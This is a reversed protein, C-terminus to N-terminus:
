FFFLFLVFCSLVPPLFLPPHLLELILLLLKNSASCFRPPPTLLNCKGRARSDVAETSVVVLGGTLIARGNWAITHSSAASHSSSFTRPFQLQGSTSTVGVSARLSFASKSRGRKWGGVLKQCQCVWGSTLQSIWSIYNEPDWCRPYLHICLSASLFTAFSKYLCSSM